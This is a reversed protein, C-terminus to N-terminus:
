GDRKEWALCAPSNILVDSAKGGTWKTLRCKYFKRLNPQVHGLHKCGRCTEGKPGSGPPAAYGRAKGPGGKRPRYDGLTPMTMPGDALAQLQERTVNM